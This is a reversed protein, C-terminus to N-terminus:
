LKVGKADDIRGKATKRRAPCDRFHYELLGKCRLERYATCESCKACVSSYLTRWKM